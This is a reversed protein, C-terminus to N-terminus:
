KRPQYKKVFAEAEGATAWAKTFDVEGNAGKLKADFVLYDPITHLVVYSSSSISRAQNLPQTASINFEYDRAMVNYNVNEEGSVDVSVPRDLADKVTLVQPEREIKLRLFGGDDNNVCASSTEEESATVNDVFYSLDCFHYKLFNILCVVKAQAVAKAKAKEADTATESEAVANYEQEILEFTPLGAEKAKTIQDNTPVFVTYRYASFFRILEEDKATAKTGAESFIRYKNREIKWDSEVMDEPRFLTALFESADAFEQCLEFFSAFQENNKLVNFVTKTSPQMPRDLFYTMGNGYGENGDATTGTQNYGQTVVCDFDNDKDDHKLEIQKGGLVVMGVGNTSADAKKAIYVPAGSRSIYYNASANVGEKDDNEHVVIHQDVMETLMAAKSMGYGSASASTIVDNANSTKAPRGTPSIDNADRYRYADARVAVRKGSAQTTIADPTFTWFYKQASSGVISSVPDIYGHNLLGADTPVFFSFRSQMALLYTHYFKRLPANGYDSDTFNEDAHIVTNMVKTDTSYLVPAMVSAYTAPSILTNMVYVVGNNALLVKDFAKKYDSLQDYNLFMQDQADNMITLYKSPVTENFSDKMLNAIMPKIINLPIQFLCYEFARDDTAALTIKDAPAYRELLSRGSGKLFYERMAADSPVFMAAMDQEKTSLNVSYQNWGPDYSLSPFDGLTKDDPDLTIAGIQSRQSIYLKQFVSDEESMSPHLLRYEDTLLKDYYPASFRELMASFFNTSGNSRIVEAMNQPTLLVSDLVHYYGNLCTVDQEEILRNYIFGNGSVKAAGGEGMNLVFAVDDDTISKEKMQGELFHTMMPATKDLAMYIPKNGNRFREWFKTDGTETKGDDGLTPENLNEPLEHPQWLRISDTATTASLQRLCLNKLPGQITTLMEVVYANNLMSGNYLLRKQSTSLQSYYGNLDSAKELGWESGPQAQSEFFDFYAKDDAVFLTKSGTQSMVDKYGLDDILRVVTSFSRDRRSKLEDYISGKLFNPKSEDLDFDDSCSYTVGCTSLLCMAGLLSKGMKCFRNKM